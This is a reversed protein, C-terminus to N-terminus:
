KRRRYAILGVFGGCLLLLSSPIPVASITLSTDSLEYSLQFAEVQNEGIRNSIQFIDTVGLIEGSYDFSCLTGNTLDYYNSLFLGDQDLGGFQFVLGREADMAISTNVDWGLTQGSALQPVADGFAFESFAFEDDVALWISFSQIESIPEPLGDIDVSFIASMSISPIAFLLLMFVAVKTIWRNMLM